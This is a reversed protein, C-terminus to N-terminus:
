LARVFSFLSLSSFGRKRRIHLFGMTMLNSKSVKVRLPPEIREPLPPRSKLLINEQEKAEVSKIYVAAFQGVLAVTEKEANM